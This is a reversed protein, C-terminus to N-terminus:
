RAIQQWMALREITGDQRIRAIRSPVGGEMFDGLRRFDRIAAELVGHMRVGTSGSSLRDLLREAVWDDIVRDCDEKAVEAVTVSRWVNGLREALSIPYRSRQPMSM